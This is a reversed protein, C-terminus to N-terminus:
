NVSERRGAWLCRPMRGFLAQAPDLTLDAAEPPHDIVIAIADIDDRLDRGDAGRKPADLFFHQSIVHRMADFPRDGAAVLGILALLNGLQHVDNASGVPLRPEGCHVWTRWRTFGFVHARPSSKRSQGNAFM